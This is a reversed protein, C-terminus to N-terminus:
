LPRKKPMGPRRPYKSPTIDVKVLEVLYREGKVKPINVKHIAELRSGLLKMAEKAEDLEQQYDPGKFYVISGGKFVFPITYEALVNIPAVARSTALHFKGRYLKNNGLEEARSHLAEIGSLNLKEILSNLFNVRKKLSDVLLIELDPRYIKFVLGPFGAGTGIDIIKIGERLNYKSFYILSDFFHKSIVEEPDDIATLNYKSNEELLFNMYIYLNDVIDQRYDLDMKDLGTKLIKNFDDRNM